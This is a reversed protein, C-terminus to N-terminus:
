RYIYRVGLEPSGSSMFSRPQREPIGLPQVAAPQSLYRYTTSSPAYTPTYAPPLTSGAIYTYFGGAPTMNMYPASAQPTVAAAGCFVVCVAHLCTLGAQPPHAPSSTDPPLCGGLAAEAEQAAAEDAAAVKASADAKARAAKVKEELVLREEERQKAAEEAAKAAAAEEEQRKAAAAKIEEAEKLAAEAAAQAAAARAEAEEATPPATAAAQPAYAYAYYTPMMPMGGGSYSAYQM